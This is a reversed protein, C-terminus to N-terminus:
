VVEKSARSKTRPNINLDPIREILSDALELSRLCELAEGIKASSLNRGFLEDSIRRRSLGNPNKRLARLIKRVRPEDALPQEAKCLKKQELTFPLGTLKHALKKALRNYGM